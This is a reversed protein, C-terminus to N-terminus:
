RLGRLSVREVDDARGDDVEGGDDLESRDRLSVREVDGARGDDVVGGYDLESGHRRDAESASRKRRDM